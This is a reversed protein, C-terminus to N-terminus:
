ILSANQHGLCHSNSVHQSNIFSSSSIVEGDENIEEEFVQGVGSAYYKYDFGDSDLASFEKIKIVNDFNFVSANTDVIQAQDEEKGISFEQYYADDVQPNAEMILGPLFQDKGALWSDSNDTSILKGRSNYEYETTSEGLLWVNGQTDQAYYSLTQESLLNDDDFSRDCVVRSTIGLIDKTQNTVLVKHTELDKEGTDPEIEEGKYTSLTGPTLSFYPNDIKTSNEFSTSSLAPLTIDALNSTSVLEPSLEPEGGESTLGEDALIQGIGPAYYKYEFTDPELQTFDRTKLVNDFEGFDISVFEDTSIVQAQDEAEGRFFEQYYNDGVQPHAEMILGPLAGDIGAEWSGDNNTGIFNGKDDYEYNTALEGLYWVNGQTDQAYWDYTDEVLVGEQWSVDRVVVAQVGSIEKTDFTVFVQNSEVVSSDDEDTNIEGTMEDEIDNNDDIGDDINNAKEQEAEYAFITGPTKPFYPNDIQTGPQFTVKSFDPLLTTM